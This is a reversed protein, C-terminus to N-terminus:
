RDFPSAKHIMLSGPHNCSHTTTLCKSCTSAHYTGRLPLPRHRAARPTAAKGHGPKSLMVLTITQAWVTKEKGLHTGWDQGRNLHLDGERWGKCRMLKWIRPMQPWSTGGEKAERREQPQGTRAEGRAQIAAEGARGTQWGMWTTVLSTRRM